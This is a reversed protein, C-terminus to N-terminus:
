WNKLWRTLLEKGEAAIKYEAENLTQRIKNKAKASVVYNIWDPSPKQNKGSMIEM